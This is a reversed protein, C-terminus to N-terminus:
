PSADDLYSALLSGVAVVSDRRLCYQQTSGSSRVRVLGASRLVVLHHRTLTKSMGLDTGLQQLTYEGTTLRKLLRLRREDSVAKLLRLLRPPPEEGAVHM